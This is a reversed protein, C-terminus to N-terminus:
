RVIGVSRGEITCFQSYYYDHSIVAILKVCFTILYGERLTLDM